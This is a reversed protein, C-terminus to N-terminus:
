AEDDSSEGSTAGFSLDGAVLDTANGLTNRRLARRIRELQQQGELSYRTQPMARLRQPPIPEHTQECVGYTGRKMREIAEAIEALKAQEDSVLNLAFDREFSETGADGM